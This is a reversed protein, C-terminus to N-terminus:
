LLGCLACWGVSSYFRAGQTKVASHEYSNMKARTQLPSFKNFGPPHSRLCSSSDKGASPTLPADRPVDSCQTGTGAHQRGTQRAVPISGTHHLHCHAHEWQSYYKNVKQAHTKEAPRPSRTQWSGRGTRERVTCQTRRDPM